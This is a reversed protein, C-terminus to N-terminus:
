VTVFVVVFGLSFWRFSDVSFVYYGKSQCYERFRLFGPVCLVLMAFLAMCVFKFLKEMGRPERKLMEAEKAKLDQQVETQM